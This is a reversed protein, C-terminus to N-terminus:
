FPEAFAYKQKLYQEIGERECTNLIRSYVIIESVMGLFRRSADALDTNGWNITLIIKVNEFGSGFAAKKADRYLTTGGRFTTGSNTNATGCFVHFKDSQVGTSITTTAETYESQLPGSAFNWTPAGAANFLWATAFTQNSALCVVFFTRPTKLGPSAFTNTLGYAAGSAAGWDVAPLGNIIGTKFVPKVSDGRTQGIDNGAGSKDKWQSVRTGDTCLNVGANSYCSTSADLWQVLGPVNTPYLLSSSATVFAPDQALGCLCTLMFLLVRM